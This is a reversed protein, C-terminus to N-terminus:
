RVLRMDEYRGGGGWGPRGHEGGGGGWGRKQGNYDCGDEKSVIGAKWSLPILYGRNQPSVSSRWLRKRSTPILKCTSLGLPPPCLERGLAPSSTKAITTVQRSGTSRGTARVAGKSNLPLHCKLHRKGKWLVRTWCPLDIFGLTSYNLIIVARSAM